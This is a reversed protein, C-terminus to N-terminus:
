RRVGSGSKSRIASGASRHSERYESGSAAPFPLRAVSLAAALATEAIADWGFRLEATRRATAAILDRLDADRLLVLLADAFEPGIGRILLEEGDTLDLGQCGVPTSVVARGCAMAEMLKINTGASVPLPIAVVDCERYAPRVDEVFGEITVRPDKALLATKRALQAARQHDPGAIVHLRCDPLERWVAPMITERLAEFALLNPLHRFSGVFLIAPESTERPEPRFRRLDVGNPVVATTRRSAGHEIAIARDHESMTWVANVCQLAAREFDLWLGAGPDALQRYLTFTIDHEVLIVPVQGTCDRYEAMQTYELQVLDVLRGLCFSRILDAMASNRYHAIQEPVAPDAHKEDIDVTYVERFVDHLEPYHVTEGAERFCALIFDVKGALARCLNYIRVAGGHSLPFPLYPSVILIRPLGRPPQAHAPSWALNGRAPGPRRSTRVRLAFEWDELPMAPEETVPGAHGAVLSKWGAADAAWFILALAAGTTAARPVKLQALLERRVVIASSWPAFVQTVEGPQLRRFPHKNVLQRRWGTYAIQRAAAFADTRLALEILPAPDRHEGASRFLIFDAQTETVARQVKARPWARGELIVTTYSAGSPRAIPRVPLSPVEGTRLAPDPACQAVLAFLALTASWTREAFRFGLSYLLWVLDRLRQGARYALSAVEQVRGVAWRGTRLAAGETWEAVRRRAAQFADRLRRGAHAALPAPKAPFVGHAENIIAIRFPPVTLAVLKLLADAKGGTWAVIVLAPWLRRLDRRVQLATAGDEACWARIPLDTGATRAHAIGAEVEARTVGIVALVKPRDAGLLRTLVARM